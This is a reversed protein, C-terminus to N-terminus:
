AEWWPSMMKQWNRSVGRHHNSWPIVFGIALFPSVDHATGRQNLRSTCTSYSCKMMNSAAHLHNTYIFASLFIPVSINSHFTLPTAICFNSQPPSDKKGALKDTSSNPYFLGSIYLKIVSLCVLCKGVIQICFKLSNPPCSKNPNSIPNSPPPTINFSSLRPCFSVFHLYRTVTLCCWPWVYMYFANVYYYNYPSDYIFRTRSYYWSSFFCGRLAFKLYFTYLYM